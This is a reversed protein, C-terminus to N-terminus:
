NGTKWPPVVRHGVTSVNNEEVKEGDEWAESRCISLIQNIEGIRQGSDLLFKALALRSRM